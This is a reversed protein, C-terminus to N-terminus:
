VADDGSDSVGLAPDGPNFGREAVAADRSAFRLASGNAIEDRTAVDLSAPRM